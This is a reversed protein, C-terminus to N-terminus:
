VVVEFFTPSDQAHSLSAVSSRIPEAYPQVPPQVQFAPKQQNNSSRRMIVASSENKLKTSSTKNTPYPIHENHIMAYPQIHEGAMSTTNPAPSMTSPASSDLSFDSAQYWPRHQNDGFGGYAANDMMSSDASDSNLVAESSPRSTYPPPPESCNSERGAVRPHSAVHDVSQFQTMLAQKMMHPSSSGNSGTPSHSGGGVRHTQHLSTSTENRDPRGNNLIQHSAAVQTAAFEDKDEEVVAFVTPGLQPPNIGVPVSASMGQQRQSSRPSLRMGGMSGASQQRGPIKGPISTPSDCFSSNPSFADDGEVHEYDNWPSTASIMVNSGEEASSNSPRPLPVKQVPSSTIHSTSHYGSTTSAQRKMAQFNNVSGPAPSALNEQSSVPIQYAEAAQMRSASQIPLVGTDVSEPILNESSDSPFQGLPINEMHRQVDMTGQTLTSYVPEEETTGCTTVGHPGYRM